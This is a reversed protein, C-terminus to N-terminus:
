AARPEGLLDPELNWIGRRTEPKLCDELARLFRERPWEEAGFRLLHETRVQCDILDFGWAELQRTLAVLAIKSADPRASFMSEGFFASGLSVGYLGGVLEGDQWTEVSHAFGLEHLRCYAEIMDRTIWTGEGPRRPARSCGCVVREFATDARVEHVPRRLRKRLSRPVRLRSPRLVLRPDPSFWLIPEGESYWPFIGRAYALLLRQPSLDGGIALLGGPEAERPDPFAIERGLLHVPM